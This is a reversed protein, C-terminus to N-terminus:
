AAPRLAAKIAEVDASAAFVYVTAAIWFAGILVRWARSGAPEGGAAMALMVFMEYTGRQGNGVHVWINGFNLSVAILGYLVAALALASRRRWWWVASTLLGATVLLPLWTGSRALAPANSHYTGAAISRWLEVFGAFPVGLDHPDYFLAEAGWTHYFRWAVYARWVVVPLLSVTAFSWATRRGAARWTAGIMCLVFIAGTERVLLSVALAVGAATWHQKRLCLYGVVLLAAAIPEPLAALASAWFGPVAIAVLGWAPSRGARVALMALAWATLTAGGVVLWVMTAPFARWRSFAFARTLWSFGIRGFRYPPADMVSNYQVVADAFRLILPDFAAIYMFQGDYGGWEVLILTRRIDKRDALVPNRDYKYQSIQIFGSYNGHHTTKLVHGVVRGYVGLVIAAVLLARAFGSRSSPVSLIRSDPHAQSV